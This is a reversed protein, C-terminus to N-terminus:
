GGRHSPLSGHFNVAQKAKIQQAHHLSCECHCVKREWAAFDIVLIKPVFKERLKERDSGM